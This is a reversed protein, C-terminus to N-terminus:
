HLTSLELAPLYGGSSISAQTSAIHNQLDITGGDSGSVLELEFHLIGFDAIGYLDFHLPPSRTCVM